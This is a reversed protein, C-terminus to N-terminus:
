DGDVEIADMDGNDEVNVSTNIRRFLKGLLPAFGTLLGAVAVLIIHAIMLSKVEYYYSFKEMFEQREDATSYENIRNIIGQSTKTYYVIDCFIIIALMAFFLGLMVWNPKQRKPFSNFLCVFGLISLLLSVFYSLGMFSLQLTATTNSIKTQNFTVLVLAVVHVLIALNQPRRKLGVIRKRFFEKAGKGLRVFFGKFKNQPQAVTATATGDSGVTAEAQIKSSETM